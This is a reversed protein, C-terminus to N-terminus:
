VVQGSAKFYDVFKVCEVDVQPLDCVAPIKRNKINQPPLQQKGEDSILPIGMAQATAIVFLDNEDVGRKGYNDNAIALLAKITNALQVIQNTVQAVTCENAILWAGCDPVKHNVEVLAVAPIVIHGATVEGGFWTWFGVMQGAPYNEWVWIMSSADIVRM